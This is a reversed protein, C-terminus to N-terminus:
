RLVTSIRLFRWSDKIIERSPRVRSKAIIMMFGYSLIERKGTRTTLPISFRNHLCSLNLVHLRGCGGCFCVNIEKVKENKGGVSLGCGFFRVTMDPLYLVASIFLCDGGSIEGAFIKYFGTKYRKRCFLNSQASM